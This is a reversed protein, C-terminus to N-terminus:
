ANYTIKKGVINQASDIVQAILNGMGDGLFLQHYSQLNKLQGTIASTPVIPIWEAADEGELEWFLKVNLEEVAM